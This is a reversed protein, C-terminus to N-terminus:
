ENSGFVTFSVSFPDQIEMLTALWTEGLEKILFPGNELREQLSKNPFLQRQLAEFSNRADSLKRKEFAKTKQEIRELIRNIKAQHAQVSNNYDPHNDGLHEIYQSLTQQLEKATEQWIKLQPADQIQNKMWTDVRLFLERIRLKKQQIKKQQSASVYLLSNRLFLRPYPVKFFDFNAKLQLWYALEGGGGIFAINPLISEQYLPRLIVNPSFREPHQHLEQKLENSTWRLSTGVAVFAQGDKDLRFRGNTNLYFLNIERPNAQVHYRSQLRSLDAQIRSLANAGFLEEEMIPIFSSKLLPTDADLVLLGTEGFLYHLLYRTAEALTRKGNYAETLASIWAKEHPLHTNWYRAYRNLLEDIGETTMRGCAGGQQPEWEFKEGLFSCRAIEDVDHDESGIYFVPVVHKGPFQRNLAKALQIAHVTKYIVYLPGLFLIPQHATCVTFTTENLLSDIQQLALDKNPLSSYQERLVKNLNMRNIAHKEKKSFAEGMNEQSPFAEILPIFFPDHSVYDNVLPTFYGTEALALSEVQLNKLM